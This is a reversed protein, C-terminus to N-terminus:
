LAGHFASIGKRSTSGSTQHTLSAVAAQSLQQCCQSWPCCVPAIPVLLSHLKLFFFFPCPVPQRCVPLEVPCQYPRPCTPYALRFLHYIIGPALTQGQAKLKLGLEWQPSGAEAQSSGLAKLEYMLVWSEM